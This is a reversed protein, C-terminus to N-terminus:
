RNGVDERGECLAIGTKSRLPQSGSMHADMTASTPVGIVSPRIPVFPVRLESRANKVARPEVGLSQSDFKADSADRM